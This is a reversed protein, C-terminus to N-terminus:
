EDDEDDSDDLLELAEIMEDRGWKKRIQIGKEECLKKLQKDTMSDYDPEEEEDESEDIDEIDDEDDEDYEDTEDSIDEKIMKGDKKVTVPFTDIIISKIKGKYEDDDIIVGFVLGRMKDLSISMKSKPVEVKCSLLLNRLKFLAQEQLSTDYFIKKDKIAGNLGVLEWTIKDKGAKSKGM